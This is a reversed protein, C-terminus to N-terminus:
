NMPVLCVAPEPLSAPPRPFPYTWDIKQPYFMASAVTRGSRDRIEFPGFENHNPWLWAYQPGGANPSIWPTALLFELDGPQIQADGGSSPWHWVSGGILGNTTYGDPSRQPMQRGYTFLAPMANACDSAVIRLWFAGIAGGIGSPNVDYWRNVGILGDRMWLHPNPWAVDPYVDTTNVLGPPDAGNVVIERIAPVLVSDIRHQIEARRTALEGRRTDGLYDFRENNGITDLRQVARVHGVFARLYSDSKSTLPNDSHTAAPVLFSVPAVLFSVPRPPYAEDNWSAEWLREELTTVTGLLAQVNSSDVTSPITLKDWIGPLTSTRTLAISGSSALSSIASQYSSSLDVSGTLWEGSAVLDLGVASTASRSLTSVDLNLTANHRFRQAIIIQDGYKSTFAAPDDALMDAADPDLKAQAPDLWWWGYDRECRLKLQTAGTTTTLQKQYSASVSGSYALYAAELSACFTMGSSDETESDSYGCTVEVTGGPGQPAYLQTRANAVDKLPSAKLPLTGDQYPAADTTWGMGVGFRSDYGIEHPGGESETPITYSTVPIPKSVTRPATPVGNEAGEVLTATVTSTGPSCAVVPQTGNVVRAARSATLVPVHLAGEEVTWRVETGAPAIVDNGNSDRLRPTLTAIEGFSLGPDDFTFDTITSALAFSAQNTGPQVTLSAVGRALVTGTGDAGDYAEALITQQGIPVGRVGGATQPTEKAVVIPNGAIALPQNTIGDRITIKISNAAYPIMRSPSDDQVPQPWVVVVNVDGTRQEITTGVVGGAGVPPAVGGDGSGGCGALGLWAAAVGALLRRGWHRKGCRRKTNM